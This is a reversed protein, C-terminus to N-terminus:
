SESYDKTLHAEIDVRCIPCRKNQSLWQDVCEVHFLHMCPLRRVDEELEFESLCITCKDAEEEEEDDDEPQASRKTFKHPFTNREICQRSAGRTMGASRRAEMLRMYEEMGLMNRPQLLSSFAGYNDLSRPYDAHRPIMVGLEPDALGRHARINSSSNWPNQFQPMHHQMEEMGPHFNIGPPEPMVPTHWRHLSQQYRRYRQDDLPRQQPQSHLHAPPPNQHQQNSPPQNRSVRPTPITLTPRSLERGNLPLPASPGPQTSHHSMAEQVPGQDVVEAIDDGSNVPATTNQQRNAPSMYRRMQEQQNHQMHWIRQHRPNMRQVARILRNRGHAASSDPMSSPYLSSRHAPPPTQYMNGDTMNHQHNQAGTCPCGMTHSSHFHGRYCDNLDYAWPHRLRRPRFEHSTGAASANQDSLLQPPMLPDMTQYTGLLSSASHRQRQYGATDRDDLTEPQYFGPNPEAIIEAAVVECDDVTETAASVTSKSLSSSTSSSSSTKVAEITIDDDESSVEQTLDVELPLRGHKKGKRRPIKVVQVDDGSSDDSDSSLCDLQLDPATLGDKSNSQQGASSSPGATQQASSSPGATDQYGSSSPGATQKSISSPGAATLQQEICSTESTMQPNISNSGIPAQLGSPGPQPETETCCKRKGEKERKENKILNAAAAPALTACVLDRLAEQSYAPSLNPSARNSNSRSNNKSTPALTSAALELEVITSPTDAAHAENSGSSNTTQSPSKQLM